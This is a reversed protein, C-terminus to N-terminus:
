CDDGYNDAVLMVEPYYYYYDLGLQQETCTITDGTPVCNETKFDGFGGIVLFQTGDFIVAHGSRAQKLSGALSWTRTAADLRGIADQLTGDYDEGGFIYYSEEHYVSAYYGFEDGKKFKSM